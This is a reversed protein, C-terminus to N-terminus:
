KLSLQDLKKDLSKDNVKPIFSRSERVRNSRKLSQPNRKEFPVPSTRSNNTQNSNHNGYTETINRARPSTLLQKQPMKRRNNQHPIRTNDKLIVDNNRGKLGARFTPGLEAASPPLTDTFLTTEIYGEDEESYAKFTLNFEPLQTDDELRTQPNSDPSQNRAGSIPESSTEFCSVLHHPIDVLYLNIDTM